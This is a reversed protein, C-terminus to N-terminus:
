WRDDTDTEWPADDQSDEIVRKLQENELTLSEILKEQQELRLVVAHLMDQQSRLTFRVLPVEDVSWELTLLRDVEAALAELRGRLADEDRM